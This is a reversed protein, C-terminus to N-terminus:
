RFTLPSSFAPRKLPVFAARAPKALRDPSLRRSKEDKAGLDAAHPHTQAGEAGLLPIFGDDGLEGV